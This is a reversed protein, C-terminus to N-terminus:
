GESAGDDDGASADDAEGITDDVWNQMPDAPVNRVDFSLASLTFQVGLIILLAAIIVTGATAPLGSSWSLWWNYGGFLIGFVLLIPGLLFEISAVQFDRLFYNYFIRKAFNRVHGGIFPLLVRAVRLNSKESGYVAKMPVDKVVLRAINLRFLLDSEFFYHHSVKDFRIMDVLGLHLATYGNTPDFINWYGTSLKALFSLMANGFLRITPMDRTDEPSFFRNGKTYDASGEVIPRVFLPILAPNMQGDGDIKAAVTAGEAKAAHYGTKTAGGVGKNEEHRVVIVRPDRVHAEIHAGSNQPCADDVCVIVDVMDPIGDIVDLIQERVRYCPIVVAIKDERSRSFRRQLALQSQRNLKM